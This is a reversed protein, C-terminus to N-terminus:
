VKYQLLRDDRINFLKKVRNSFELIRKRRRFFRRSCKHSM